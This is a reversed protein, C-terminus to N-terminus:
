DPLADVMARVEAPTESPLRWAPDDGYGAYGGASPRWRIWSRRAQIVVLMARVDDLTATARPLKRAITARSGSGQCLAHWRAAREEARWRWVLPVWTYGSTHPAVTAWVMVVYRGNVDPGRLCVAGIRKPVDIRGHRVLIAVGGLQGAVAVAADHERASDTHITDM